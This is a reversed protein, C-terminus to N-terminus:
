FNISDPLVIFDISPFDPEIWHENGWIIFMVSM